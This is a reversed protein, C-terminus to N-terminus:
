LLGEKHMNKLMQTATFRGIPWTQSRMMAMVQEETPEWEEELFSLLLEIEECDGWGSKINAGYSKYQMYERDDGHYVVGLNELLIKPVEIMKTEKEESCHPCPIVEGIEWYSLVEGKDQCMNCDYEDDYYSPDYYDAGHIGDHALGHNMPLKCPGDPTWRKCIKGSDSM